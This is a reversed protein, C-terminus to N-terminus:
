IQHPPMDVEIVVKAQTADVKSSQIQIRRAAVGNRPRKMDKGFDNGGGKFFGYEFEVKLARVIHGDLIHRGEMSHHRLLPAEEM